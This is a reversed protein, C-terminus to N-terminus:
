GLRSGPPDRDLVGSNEVARPLAFLPGGMLRVGAELLAFAQDEESVDSAVLPIDAVSLALREPRRAGIRLFEPRAARDFVPTHPLDGADCAIRAGSAILSALGSGAPYASVPAVFVLARALAPQLRLLDLLPRMTPADLLMAAPAFVHIPTDATDGGLRQRAVRAAALAVAQALSGDEPMDSPRVLTEGGEASALRAFAEFGAARNAEIDILPMLSIGAFRAAASPLVSRAEGRPPPPPAILAEATGSRQVPLAPPASRGLAYAGATREDLARDVSLALRSVDGRLTSQRAVSYLSLFLSLGALFACVIVIQVVPLEAQGIPWALAAGTAISAGAIVAALTRGM